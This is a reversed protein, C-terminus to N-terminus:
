RCDHDFGDGGNTEAFLSYERVLSEAIEVELDAFRSDLSSISHVFLRSKWGM